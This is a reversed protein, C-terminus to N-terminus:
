REINEFVVTSQNKKMFGCSFETETSLKEM